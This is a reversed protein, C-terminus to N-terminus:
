ADSRSWAYVTCAFSFCTLAVVGLGIWLLPPLSLAMPAARVGIVAVSLAAVACGIWEMCILPIQTRRRALQRKQLVATWWVLAASPLRTAFPEGALPRLNKIAMVTESCVPCSELHHLLAESLDKGIAGTIAEQEKECSKM